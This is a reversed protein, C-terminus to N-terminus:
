KKREPGVNGAKTFAIWEAATVSRNRQIMQEVIKPDLNKAKAYEEAEPSLGRMSAAAQAEDAQSGGALMDGAGLGGKVQRPSISNALVYGEKDGFKVKLWNDERGIVTLMDGKKATAVVGVPGKTQRIQLAPRNVWVEEAAQALAVGGMGVVAATLLARLVKKGRAQKM